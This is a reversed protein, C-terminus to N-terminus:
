TVRPVGMAPPPVAPPTAFGSAQHWSASFASTVLLDLVSGPARALLERAPEAVLGLVDVALEGLEGLPHELARAPDGLLPDPALGLAEGVTRALEALRQPRTAAGLVHAREDCLLELAVDADEASLDLGGAGVQALPELRGHVAGDALERPAGRLRAGSSAPSASDRSVSASSRSRPLMPVSVATVRPSSPPWISARRPSSSVISPSRSSACRVSARRRALCATSFIRSSRRSSIAFRILFSRRWTVVRSSSYTSLRKSRTEASSRSSTPPRDPRGDLFGAALEAFPERGLDCLPDLDGGALVGGEGLGLERAADVIVRRAGPRPNLLRDLLQPELALLRLGLEGGLGLLRPMRDRLEGLLREGSLGAALLQLEGPLLALLPDRRRLLPDGPPAILDEGLAVSSTSRSRLSSTAASRASTAAIRACALAPSSCSRSDKVEAWRAWDDRARSNWSPTTSVTPSASRRLVGLADLLRVGPQGRRLLPGGLRGLLDNRPDGLEIAAECRPDLLDALPHPLLDGRGLLPDGLPRSNPAAARRARRPRGLLPDPRGGLRAPALEVRRRGPRAHGELALGFVHSAPQRLLEGCLGLPDTALHLIRGVRGLHPDGLRGLDRLRVDGRPGLSGGGLEVSRPAAARRAASPSAAESALVARDAGVALCPAADVAEDVRGLLSRRWTSAACAVIALPRPSVSALTPSASAFRPWASVTAM